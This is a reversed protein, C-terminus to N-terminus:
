NPSRVARGDTSRKGLQRERRLGTLPSSSAPPPPDRLWATFAGLKLSAGLRPRGARAQIFGRKTLADSSRQEEGGLIRRVWRWGQPPTIKYGTKKKENRERNSVGGTRASADFYLPSSGRKAGHQAAGREAAALFGGLTFRTGSRAGNGGVHARESAAHQTSAQAAHQQQRLRSPHVLVSGSRATVCM